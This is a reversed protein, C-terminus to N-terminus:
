VANQLNKWAMRYLEAHKRMYKSGYFASVSLDQPTGSLYGNEGLSEACKAFLKIGLLALKLGISYFNDNVDLVPRLQYLIDGSDIGANLLHVTVGLADPGGYALATVIGEARYDPSWGWHMNVFPIPRNKFIHPKILRTGFVFVLDPKYEQIIKNVEDSNIDSVNVIPMGNETDMYNNKLLRQNHFEQHGYYKKHNLYKDAYNVINIPNSLLLAFGKTLKKFFDSIGSFARNGAYSNGNEFIVLQLLGKKWLRNACYIQFASRRTLLIVKM